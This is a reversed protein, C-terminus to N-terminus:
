DCDRKHHLRYHSKRTVRTTRSPAAWGALLVVQRVVTDVWLLLGCRKERMCYCANGEVVLPTGHNLTSKKHPNSQNTLICYYTKKCTSNKALRTKKQFRTKQFM